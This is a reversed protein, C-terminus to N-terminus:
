EQADSPPLIGRLESPEPLVRLNAAAAARATLRTGKSPDWPCPLPLVQVAYGAEGLRKAFAVMVRDRGPPDTPDYPALEGEEFPQADLYRGGCGRVAPLHSGPRGTTLAFCPFAVVAIGRGRAALDCARDGGRAAGHILIDPSAELPARGALVRAVLREFATLGDSGAPLGSWARAGTALLVRRPPPLEAALRIM